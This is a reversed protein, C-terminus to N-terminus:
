PGTLYICFVFRCTLGFGGAIRDEQLFAAGQGAGHFFVAKSSFRRDIQYCFSEEPNLNGPPTRLRLRSRGDL